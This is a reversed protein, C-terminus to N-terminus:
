KSFEVYAPSVIVDADFWAVFPFRGEERMLSQEFGGDHEKAKGVRGCGELHHNVM